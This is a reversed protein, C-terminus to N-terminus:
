GTVMVKPFTVWDSCVNQEAAISMWIHSGEIAVTFLSIATDEDNQMLFMQGFFQLAKCVELKVQSKLSHILFITTWGPISEDPGWSNVNGLRGLCFLTNENDELGLKLSKQFLTKAGLLDQERLYLDALASDCWIILPKLGATTFISQALEINRQVEHKPVGILVGIEAV